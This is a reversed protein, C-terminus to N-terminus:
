VTGKFQGKCRGGTLGRTRNSAPNARLSSWKGRLEGHVRAHEVVGPLHINVKEWIRALILLHVQPAGM